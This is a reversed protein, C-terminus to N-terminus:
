AIQGGVSGFSAAIGPKIGHAACCIDYRPMDLLGGGAGDPLEHMHQVCITGM